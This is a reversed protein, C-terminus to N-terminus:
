FVNSQRTYNTKQTDLKNLALNAKVIQEVSDFRDCFVLDKIQSNFAKLFRIGKIGTDCNGDFVRLQKKLQKFQYALFILSIDRRPAENHAAM